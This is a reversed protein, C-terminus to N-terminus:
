IDDIIRLYDDIVVIEKENIIKECVTLINDKEILLNENFGNDLSFGVPSELLPYSKLVNNAEELMNLDNISLKDYTEVLSFIEKKANDDYFDIASSTIVGSYYSGTKLPILGSIKQPLIGMNIDLIRSLKAKKFIINENLPNFLDYHNAIKNFNIPFDFNICKENVFSNIVLLGKDTKFGVADKPPNSSFPMSGYGDFLALHNKKEIRFNVLKSNEIGYMFLGEKLDKSFLLNRRLNPNFVLKNNEIYIRQKKVTRWSTGFYVDISLKIALLIERLWYKSEITLLIIYIEVGLLAINKVTKISIGMILHFALSYVNKRNFIIKKNRKSNLIKLINYVISLAKWKPISIFLYFIFENFKFINKDKESYNFIDNYSLAIKIITKLFYFCFLFIFSVIQFVKVIPFFLSILFIICLYIPNKIFELM